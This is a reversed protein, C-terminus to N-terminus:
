NGLLINDILRTKDVYLAGSLIVVRGDVDSKRVGPELVDFTAEDNMQIYDLRMDVQLGELSAQAKRAEVVQVAREICESKTSGASWATEAALLAQILVAAVRRADSSLYLNRSSLALGDTPDRATRVIHVNQHEPHAFLLDRCLRKL